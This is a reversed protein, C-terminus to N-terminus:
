EPVEPKAVQQLESLVHGQVLRKFEKPGEPKLIRGIPDCIVMSDRCEESEGDERWFLVTLFCSFVFEGNERWFFLTVVCSFVFM